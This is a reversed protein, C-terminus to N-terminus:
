TVDFGGFEDGGTQKEPATQEQAPSTLAAAGSLALKLVDRRDIM